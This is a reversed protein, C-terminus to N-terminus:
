RIFNEGGYANSDIKSFNVTEHCEKLYKRTLFFSSLQIYRLVISQRDVVKKLANLNQILALLMKTKMEGAFSQSRSPNRSLM